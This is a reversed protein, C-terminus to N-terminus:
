GYRGENLFIGDKSQFFLVKRQNVDLIAVAKKEVDLEFDFPLIYKGLGDGPSEIRFIFRGDKGFKTLSKTITEDLVYFGSDDVLIKDVMGVICDECFELTVTSELILIGDPLIDNENNVQITKLDLESSQGKNSQDCSFLVLFSFLLPNLHKM